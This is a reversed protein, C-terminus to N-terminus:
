VHARGIEPPADRRALREPLYIAENDLQERGSDRDVVRSFLTHFHRPSITLGFDAAYDAVGLRSFEAGTFRADHRRAISPVFARKNRRALEWCHEAITDRPIPQGDAGRPEYARPTAALMQALGGFRERACVDRLERQLDAPLKDAVWGDRERGNM